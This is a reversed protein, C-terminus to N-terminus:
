HSLSGERLVVLGLAYGGGTRTRVLYGERNRELVEFGARLAEALSHFVVLGPV